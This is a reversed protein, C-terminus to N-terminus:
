IKGKFYVFRSVLFLIEFRSTWATIISFRYIKILSGILLIAYDIYIRVFTIANKTRLFMPTYITLPPDIILTITTVRDNM